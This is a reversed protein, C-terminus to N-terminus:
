LGRAVAFGLLGLAAVGIAVLFGVLVPAVAAKKQPRSPQTPGAIPLRAPHTGGDGSRHAQLPGGGAPSMAAPEGHRSPVRPPRGFDGPSSEVPHRAPERLPPPLPQPATSPRTQMLPSGPPAPAVGPGASQATSAYARATPGIGAPVRANLPLTTQPLGSRLTEAANPNVDRVTQDNPLAKSLDAPLQPQAQPPTRFVVTAGEDVNERGVRWLDDFLAASRISVEGHRAAMDALCTAAVTVALLSASPYFAGDWTSAHAQWVVGTEDENIGWDLEVPGITTDAYLDFLENSRRAARVGSARALMMARGGLFGTSRVMDLVEHSIAVECAALLGRWPTDVHRSPVHPLIEKTARALLRTNSALTALVYRELPSLAAWISPTLSIQPGLAGALREPPVLPDPESTVPMLKLHRKVDGVLCQQVAVPNINPSAGQNIITRRNDPTLALWGQQSIVIGSRFLARAAALPPRGLEPGIEEFGFVTM